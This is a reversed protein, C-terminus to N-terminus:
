ATCLLGLVKVLKSWDVYPQHEPRFDSQSWSAKGHNCAECLVQLNEPDLRLNWYKRLPKIHDVHLVVDPPKAGCCQCMRGYKELITYRLRRWEFSAYFEKAKIFSQRIPDTKKSNRPKKNWLEQDILGRRSLMLYTNDLSTIQRAFKRIKIRAGKHTFFCLGRSKFHESLISACEAYGLGNASNHNTLNATKIYNRCIRLAALSRQNTKSM